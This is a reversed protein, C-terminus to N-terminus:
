RIRIRVLRRRKIWRGAVFVWEEVWVHKYTAMNEEKGSARSYPTCLVPPARVADGHKLQNM